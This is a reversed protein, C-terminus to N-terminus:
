CMRMNAASRPTGTSTTGSRAYEQTPSILSVAHSGQDRGIEVARHDVRRRSGGGGTSGKAEVRSFGPRSGDADLDIAVGWQTEHGRGGDVGEGREGRAGRDDRDGRARPLLELPDIQGTRRELVRHDAVAAADQMVALVVDGPATSEFSAQGGLRRRQLLQVGVEEAPDVIRPHGRHPDGVVQESIEHDVAVPLGGIEDGVPLRPAGRAPPADRLLTALDIRHRDPDGFRRRDSLDSSTQDVVPGEVGVSRDQGGTVTTEVGIQEDVGVVRDPRTM